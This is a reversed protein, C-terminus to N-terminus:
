PHGSADPWRGENLEELTAKYEEGSLQYFRGLGDEGNFPALELDDATKSSGSKKVTEHRQRAEM